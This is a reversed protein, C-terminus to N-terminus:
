IIKHMGEADDAPPFNNGSTEPMGASVFRFLAAQRSCPETLDLRSEENGSREVM